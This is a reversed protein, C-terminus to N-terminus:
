LSLAKHPLIIIIREVNGRFGWNMVKVDTLGINLDHRQSNLTFSIGGYNNWSARLCVTGAHFLFFFFFSCGVSIQRPMLILLRATKCFAPARPACYFEPSFVWLGKFAPPPSITSATSLTVAPFCVPPVILCVCECLGDERSERMAGM